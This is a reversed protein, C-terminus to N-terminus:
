PTSTWETGGEGLDGVGVGSRWLEWARAVVQHNTGEALAAEEPTLLRPTGGLTIAQRLVAANTATYVARAVAEPVSSGAAVFGHGRMLVVCAEGLAEALAAGQPPTRVLMDTAGFRDAIDFVPAGAGLFAALHFAARLPTPSITFPLV